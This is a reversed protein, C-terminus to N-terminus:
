AKVHSALEWAYELMEAVSEFQRVSTGRPSVKILNFINDPAGVVWVELGVALAYGYEVQRGHTPGVEPETLLIFIHSREIEQLDQHGLRDSSKLNDPHTFPETRRDHHRKTWGDFVYYGLLRMAAAIAWVRERQEMPAAIYVSLKM